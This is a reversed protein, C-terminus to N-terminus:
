CRIVPAHRNDSVSEPHCARCRAMYARRLEENSSFTHSIGVVEYLSKATNIRDITALAPDGHKTATTSSSGAADEDSEQITEQTGGFSKRSASRASGAPRRRVSNARCPKVVPPVPAPAPPGYVDAPSTSAFHQRFAPPNSASQQRIAPPNSASQQCTLRLETEATEAM